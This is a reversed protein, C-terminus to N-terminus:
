TLIRTHIIPSSMGMRWSAVRWDPYEAVHKGLVFFTARLGERALIDLLESTAPAPGDDFTLAVVGGACRDSARVGVSQVVICLAVLWTACRKLM